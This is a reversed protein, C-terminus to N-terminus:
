FKVLMGELWKAAYDLSKGRADVLCSFGVYGDPRVLVVGMQKSELGFEKNVLGRSALFKIEEGAWDPKRFGGM